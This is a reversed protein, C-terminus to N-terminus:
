RVVKETSFPSRNAIESCSVLTVIYKIRYCDVHIFVDNLEAYVQDNWHKHTVIVERMTVM